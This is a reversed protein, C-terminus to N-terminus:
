LGRVGIAILMAGAMALLVAYDRRRRALVWRRLQEMATTTRDPALLYAAIPALLVVNAISLFILLAGAQISLPAGSTAILLLLALYDVSPIAIGVGLAGAFWPSSGHALRDARTSLWDVLGPRTSIADPSQTASSDAAGSNSRQAPFNGALIASVILALAGVAIQVKAGNFRNDTPMFNHLLMLILLGASASTLFSGGLFALLQPIPRPRILILGILGLRTPEFNLAIALVLLTTWM